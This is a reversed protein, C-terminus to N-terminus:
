LEGRVLNMKRSFKIVLEESAHFPEMGVGMSWMYYEEIKNLISCLLEPTCVTYEDLKYCERIKNGLLQGIRNNVLDVYNDVPYNITDMLQKESFLGTTLEPMNAREHLDSVINALEESFFATIIAQATIHNFTNIYGKELSDRFTLYALEPTNINRFTAESILYFAVDGSGYYEEKKRALRYVAELQKRERVLASHKFIFNLQGNKSGKTINMIEAQSIGSRLQKKLNAQGCNYNLVVVSEPKAEIDYVSSDRYYEIQVIQKLQDLNAFRTALLPSCLGEFNINKGELDKHEDNNFQKYERLLESFTIGNEKCSLFLVAISLFYISKLLKM